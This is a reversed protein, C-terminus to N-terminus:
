TSYFLGRNRIEGIIIWQQIIEDNAMYLVVAEEDEVEPVEMILISEVFMASGTASSAAFDDDEINLHRKVSM